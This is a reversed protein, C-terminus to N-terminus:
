CKCHIEYILVTRVLMCGRRLPPTERGNNSIYTSTFMFSPFIPNILYAETHSYKIYKEKHTQNGNTKLNMHTKFTPPFESERNGTPKTTIRLDRRCFIPCKHFVFLVMQCSVCTTMNVLRLNQLWTLQKPWWYTHFTSQCTNNILLIRYGEHNFVCGKMTLSVSVNPFPHM